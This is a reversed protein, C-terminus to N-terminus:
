PEQPACSFHVNYVYTNIYIYVHISNLIEATKKLLKFLKEAARLARRAVCACMYIYISYMNICLHTRVMIDATKKLRKFVNQQVYPVGHKACIARLEPAAKQYSLM